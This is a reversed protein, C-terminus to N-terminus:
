ARRLVDGTRVPRGDPDVDSRGRRLHARVVGDRDGDVAAVRAAGHETARDDGLARGEHGVVGAAAPDSVVVPARSRAPRGSSWRPRRAHSRGPPSAVPGDRVARDRRSLGADRGPERHRGVAGDAAGPRAPGAGASWRSTRRRARRRCPSSWGSRGRRPLCRTRGAAAGPPRRRRRDPRRGRCRDSCRRSSTATRRCRSAHRAGTIAASWRARRTAASRRLLAGLQGPLDVGVGGGRRGEGGVGVEAALREVARRHQVLEGALHAGVIRRRRDLGPQHGRDVLPGLGLAAGLPRREAEDVVLLRVAHDPQGRREPRLLEVVVVEVVAVQEEGGAHEAAASGGQGVRQAGTNSRTAASRPEAPPSRSM